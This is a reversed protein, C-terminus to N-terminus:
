CIPPHMAGEEGLLERQWILLPPPSFGGEVRPGLLGASPTLSRCTLGLLVDGSGPASAGGGVPCNLAVWLHKGPPPALPNPCVRAGPSRLPPSALLCRATWGRGGGLRLFCTPQGQGRLSWPPTTRWGSASRGPAEVRGQAGTRSQEPRPAAGLVDDWGELAVPRAREEGGLGAQPRWAPPRPGRAAQGRPRIGDGGPPGGRRRGPPRPLAKLGGGLWGLGALSAAAPAVGPGRRRRRIRSRSAPPSECGYHPRAPGAGDTEESASMPAFPRALALPPDTRRVPLSRRRFSPLSGALWPPLLPPAEAPRASAPRPRAGEKGGRRRARPTAGEPGGAAGGVRSPRAPLRAPRAGVPRARCM